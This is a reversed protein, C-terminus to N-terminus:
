WFVQHGAGRLAAIARELDTEGILVYDTDFTSIVFIPVSARALPEALAALVGVMAFDLPGEVKLARWGRHCRVDPPVQAAECVISLEERTRTISLLDGWSSWEPVSETPDLRAIAFSGQLVEIRMTGSGIM